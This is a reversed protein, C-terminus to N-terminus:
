ARLDAVTRAFETSQLQAAEVSRGRARLVCIKRCLVALPLYAAEPEFAPNPAPASVIRYYERSGHISCPNLFLKHSFGAVRRVDSQPRPAGRACFFRLRKLSREH